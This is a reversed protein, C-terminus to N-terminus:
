GSKIRLGTWRSTETNTGTLKMTTSHHKLQVVTQSDCRPAMKKFVLAYFPLMNLLYVSMPNKTPQSALLHQDFFSFKYSQYIQTFHQLRNTQLQESQPFSYYNRDNFLYILTKRDLIILVLDLEKFTLGLSNKAFSLGLWGALGRSPASIAKVDTSNQAVWWGGMWGGWVLAKSIRGLYLYILLYLQAYYATALILILQSLKNM